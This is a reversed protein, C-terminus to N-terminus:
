PELSSCVGARCRQVALWEAWGCHSRPVLLPCSGASLARTLPCCLGWLIFGDPSSTSIGSACHAGEWQVSHPERGGPGAGQGRCQWDGAQGGCGIGDWEVQGWCDACERTHERRCRELSSRKTPSMFQPIAAGESGPCPPSSATAGVPAPTLPQRPLLAQPSWVRLLLHFSPASMSGPPNGCKHGISQCCEGAGIRLQTQATVTINGVIPIPLLQPHPPLAERAAQSPAVKQEESGQSTIM